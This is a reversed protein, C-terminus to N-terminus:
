FLGEVEKFEPKKEEIPTSRQETEQYGMNELSDLNDDPVMLYVYLSGDPIMEGKILQNTEQSFIYRNGDSSYKIGEYNEYLQAFYNENVNTFLIRDLKGKDFYFMVKGDYDLKTDVGGSDDVNSVMTYNEG